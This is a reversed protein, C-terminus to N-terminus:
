PQTVADENDQSSMAWREEGPVPPAVSPSAQEQLGRALIPQLFVGASSSTQLDARFVIQDEYNQLSTTEHRCPLM